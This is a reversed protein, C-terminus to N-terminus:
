LTKNSSQMIFNTLFKWVRELHTNEKDNGGAIFLLNQQETGDGAKSM